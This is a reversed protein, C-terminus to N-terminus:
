KVKNLFNKIKKDELSKIFKRLDKNIREAIEDYSTGDEFDDFHQYVGVTNNSDYFCYYGDMNVNDMKDIEKESKIFGSNHFIKLAKKFYIDKTQKDDKKIRRGRESGEKVLRVLYRYQKGQIQIEFAPCNKLNENLLKKSQIRYTLHSTTSYGLKSELIYENNDFKTFYNEIYKDIANKMYETKMKNYIVSLQNDKLRNPFTFYKEETIYPDKKIKSFESIIYDCYENLISFYENITINYKRREKLKAKIKKALKIYDIEGWGKPVRNHKILFVLTYESDYGDREDEDNEYRELQEESVFSKLKNEIIYKKKNVEDIIRIDKNLKERQIYLNQTVDVKKFFIKIFEHDIDMLWAWLNSHFLEHSNNSLAPIISKKMNKM